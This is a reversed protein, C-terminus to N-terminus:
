SGKKTRGSKMFAMQALRKATSVAQLNDDSTNLVNLAAILLLLPRDDKTDVVNAFRQLYSTILSLMTNKTSAASVDDDERQIAEVIDQQLMYQSFRNM